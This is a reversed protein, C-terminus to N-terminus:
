RCAKLFALLDAWEQPTLQQELGAPMISVKGPQLDDIDKRPITIEKDAALTLIVEDPADKKPIGNYSQGALTRVTLPEYSRVFSASPYLVAELLDRESRIGGIRTLDPGIKGGVYGITHCAICATKTSNFVAQGRRVDGTPLSKLLGELRERQQAFDANLAKYLTEAEQQVKPSYKKLRERISDVRLAPRVAPTNLVRLLHLGVEDDATAAFVGLLRDVELPGVTALQEVLAHYQPVSLKAKSLADAALSREAVPRERDLAAGLFKFQNPTLAMGSPLVAFAGLRIDNTGPADALRTLATRLEDSNKKAPPLLRLTNIIASHLSPHRQIAQTLADQWGEPLEKLGSRAMAQLVARQAEPPAHPEGLVKALLEQVVPSKVFRVLLPVIAERGVANFDQQTLRTQLVKAVDNAWEPHRGVIWVATAQLGPDTDDMLAITSPIDLPAGMQDLATLACRRVAVTSHKLGVRTGDTDGIVILAYTVAHQLGRDSPQELVKLLDPVAQKARMQGLAEVALRRTILDDDGLLKTLTALGDRVDWRGMIQTATQRIHSRMAGSFREMADAQMERVFARAEATDIRAAVWLANVWAKEHEMDTDLGLMRSRLHKIAADGHTALQEIAHQQVVTSYWDPHGIRWALAGVTEKQQALQKGWPDDIKKHFEATRRVRYIAGFVDTKVLQSSPCCLKYWGGTDVVLLSGDPDELIDTPHFDQQDSVLWDADITRYSSGEPVLTHMSVKRLNFQCAFLRNTLPATDGLGGVTSEYCHLGAPAAPGLHTLVPMVNPSTWPHAADYIVDHDKGYIGGRIAHILGDRKGGAPHQLFTTTFFREGNPLFAVDVPNDMGGTMVPEIHTGDPKARFIHSARTTFEKGNPLTYTQKAFAGKCWYLWGDPGLYPGHLDNACGTLTKGDFWIARQDAQGDDNTDTLKWIHPPAACYVHGAHWLLGEPFMMKDAFVTSRDFVGDGNTDELRVIRHTPNKLQEATKENSGSSDAVYLRGKRDFTAVIPRDVLPTKAALEITFGEPLTFTHGNLKVTHTKGTPEAGLTVSGLALLVLVVRM